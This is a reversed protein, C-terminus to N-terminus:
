RMATFAALAQQVHAVLPRKDDAALWRGITTGFIAVGTGAALAATLPDTGRARLSQEIRQVLAAQKLLDRERLGEDSAVIRQRARLQDRRGEFEREALAPLGARILELPALGAPADAVVRAVRDVYSAKGAFLVERKDAFYRFFTRTTLGARATIAPVTAEAFGVESFLEWAARELRERAGPEWRAM